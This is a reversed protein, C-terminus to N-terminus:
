NLQASPADARLREDVLSLIQAAIAEVSDETGVPVRVDAQAYLPQRQEVLDALTQRWDPRQLLPRGTEGSLRQELVALPVDLWVVIGHHLYSWNQRQTVMGGGTAIVLRRYASLQALVETEQRRFAAEGAEAFMEPITRGAAAELVADTDFFQYALAQALATGTSSKGAGMMGVLYLNTGQLRETLTM